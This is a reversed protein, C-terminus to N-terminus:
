GAFFGVVEVGERLEFFVVGACVGGGLFFRMTVGDEFVVDVPDVVVVGFFEGVCDADVLEAVDGVFFIAVGVESELGGFILFELVGPFGGFVEVIWAIEGVGEVPSVL